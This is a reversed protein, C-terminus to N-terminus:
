MPLLSILYLYARRMGKSSPQRVATSPFVSRATPHSPFPSGILLLSTLCQLPSVRLLLYALELLRQAM